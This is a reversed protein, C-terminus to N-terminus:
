IMTSSLVRLSGKRPLVWMEQPRCSGSADTGEDGSRLRSLGCRGGQEEKFWDFNIERLTKIEM